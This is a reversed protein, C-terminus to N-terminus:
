SVQQFSDSRASQTGASKQELEKRFDHESFLGRLTEMLGAVGDVKSVVLDVGLSTALDKRAPDPYLSFMVVKTEPLAQKIAVAADTGSMKPMALDMIILQPKLTEAKAVAEVGDAAEGCVALGDFEELFMRLGIRIYPNDDVLLVSKM